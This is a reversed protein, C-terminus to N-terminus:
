TACGGGREPFLKPGMAVLAEGEKSSGWWRSPRSPTVYGNGDDIVRLVATFAEQSEVYQTIRPTPPNAPSPSTPLASRPLRSM